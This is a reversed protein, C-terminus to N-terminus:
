QCTNIQISLPDVWLVSEVRFNAGHFLQHLLYFLLIFPLYPDITIKMAVRFLFIREKVSTICSCISTKEGPCNNSEQRSYKSLFSMHKIVFVASESNLWVLNSCCSDNSPFLKLDCMRKSKFVTKEAIIKSISLRAYECGLVILVNTEFERHGDILHMKDPLLNTSLKLYSMTPKFRSSQVFHCTYRCCLNNGFLSSLGLFLLSLFFSNLLILM